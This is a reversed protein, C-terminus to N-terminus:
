AGSPHWGKGRKTIKGDKQLPPLVRYLYNANIGLKTALEPITIGPQAQVAALTEAARGGSGKPRGGRGKPRGPGKSAAKAPAATAAAASKRPRGRRASPKAATTTPGVGDIRALAAAAAELRAYEEVAPALKDLRGRIESRKVELFDAM